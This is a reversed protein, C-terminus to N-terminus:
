ISRFTRFGFKKALTRSAYLNNGTVEGILNRKLQNPLKYKNAEEVSNFEKEMICYGSPIWDVTIGEEYMDRSKLIKYPSLWILFSAIVKPIKITIEKRVLGYGIKLTLDSSFVPLLKVLTAGPIRCESKEPDSKVGSLIRARLEHSKFWILYGQKVNVTGNNECGAMSYLLFKREIEKM